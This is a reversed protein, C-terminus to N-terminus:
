DNVCEECYLETEEVSQWQVPNIGENVGCEACKSM